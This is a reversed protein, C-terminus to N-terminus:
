PKTLKKTHVKLSTYTNHHKKTNEKWTAYAYVDM